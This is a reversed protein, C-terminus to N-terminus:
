NLGAKKFSLNKLMEDMEKQCRNIKVSILSVIQDDKMVRFHTRHNKRDLLNPWNKGNFSITKGRVKANFKEPEDVEVRFPKRLNKANIHYTQFACMKLDSYSKVLFSRLYNTLVGIEDDSFQGFAPMATGKLGNHIAQEMRITPMRKMEEYDQFNRPKNNLGEALPGDGRGQDGHCLSCGNEQYLKKGADVSIPDPLDTYKEQLPAAFAISPIFLLIFIVTKM